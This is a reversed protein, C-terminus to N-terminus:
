WRPRERGLEDSTRSDAVKVHYRIAM